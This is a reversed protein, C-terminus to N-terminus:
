VPHHPRTDAGRIQSAHPPFRRSGRAHRSSPGPLGCTVLPCGRVAPGGDAVLGLQPRHGVRQAARHVGGLVLMDDEPQDEQLVDGVGELLAVRGHEGLPALVGGLVSVLVDGLVDEPHRGLGAPRMQPRLGLLRGDAQGDILRHGGNLAVVQRELVHQRAVVGPRREVLPPEALQDVEDAVDPDAVLVGPGAVHEAPDVLVEQRLEGAGLALLAALEVRRAADDAHEDLHQRRVPAPDVVRAAARRPHEHLRDLEHAGVGAAVPVAAPRLRVDADVTLLGIVRRPPERLHFRAMRPM